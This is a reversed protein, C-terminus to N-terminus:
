VSACFCKRIKAILHGWDFSLCSKPKGIFLVAPLALPTRASLWASIRHNGEYLQYRKGSKSRAEWLVIGNLKSVPFQDAVPFLVEVNKLVWDLKLATVEVKKWHANERPDQWLAWRGRVFDFTTKILEVNPHKKNPDLENRNPFNERVHKSFQCRPDWESYLWRQKIELTSNLSLVKSNPPYRWFIDCAQIATRIAKSSFSAARHWCGSNPHSITHVPNMKRHDEHRGDKSFVM